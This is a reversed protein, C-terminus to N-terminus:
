PLTVGEATKLVAPKFWEGLDGPTPRRPSCGRPSLGYNLPSTRGGQSGPPRHRLSARGVARSLGPVALGNGPQLWRACCARLTQLPAPRDRHLRENPPRGLCVACRHALGLPHLSAWGTAMWSLSDCVLESGPPAHCAFERLVHMVEQPQLYMLVGELMVWVPQARPGQPLGLSRWWHARRLDISASHHRSGLTPLLSERLAMVAPLDADLWHNDHRDLWQFYSSLGCGLNVGWSHPHRTFFDTALQRFIRTRSLVGYVSLRDQLYEQIEDEDEHLGALAIEACRDHVAMDPFIQDGYARAVLPILLTTEVPELGHSGVAPMQTSAATSPPLSQFAM